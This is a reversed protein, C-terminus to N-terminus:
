RFPDYSPTIVFLLEGILDEPKNGAKTRHEVHLLHFAKSPEEGAGGGVWAIMQQIDGTGIPLDGTSYVPDVGSKYEFLPRDISKALERETRFLVGLEIQSRWGQDSAVDVKTKGQAVTFRGPLRLKLERSSLYHRLHSYGRLKGVIQDNSADILRFTLRSTAVGPRTNFAGFAYAKLPEM